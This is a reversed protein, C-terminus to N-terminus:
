AARDKEAEQEALWKKRAKSRRQMETLEDPTLWRMLAEYREQATPLTNWQPNM